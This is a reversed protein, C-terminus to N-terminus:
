YSTVSKGGQRSIPPSSLLNLGGEICWFGLRRRNLSVDGGASIKVGTVIELTELSYTRSIGEVVLHLPASGERAIANIDAGKKILKNLLAEKGRRPWCAQVQSKADIQYRFFV